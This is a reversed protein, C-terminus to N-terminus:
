HEHMIGSSSTREMSSVSSLIPKHHSTYPPPATVDTPSTAKTVTPKEPLSSDSNGGNELDPDYQTAIPNFFSHLSKEGGTRFFRSYKSKLLNTEVSEYFIVSMLFSSGIANM